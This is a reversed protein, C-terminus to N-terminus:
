AQQRTRRKRLWTRHHGDETAEGCEDVLAELIRASLDDPSAEAFESPSQDPDPVLLCSIEIQESDVTFRLQLRGQRSRGVALICLEDVALRLDEIEEVDFGARSAVTAATLRALTVLDAQVPITLEIIDTV